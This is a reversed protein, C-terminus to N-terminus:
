WFLRKYPLGLGGIMVIKKYPSGVHLKRFEDEDRIMFTYQRDCCNFTDLKILRKGDGYKGHGVWKRVIHGEVLVKKQQLPLV